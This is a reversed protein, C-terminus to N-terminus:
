VGEAEPSTDHEPHINKFYPEHIYRGSEGPEPTISVSKAKFGLQWAVVAHGAEHYATSELAKTRKM